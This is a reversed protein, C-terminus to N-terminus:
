HNTKKPLNRRSSSPFSNQNGDRNRRTKNRTQPIARIRHGRVALQRPKEQPTTHRTPQSSSVSQSRFSPATWHPPHAWVDLYTRQLSSPSDLFTRPKQKSSRYNYIRRNANKNAYCPTCFQDTVQQFRALIVPCSQKELLRLLLYSSPANGVESRYFFTELLRHELNSKM